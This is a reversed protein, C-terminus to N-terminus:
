KLEKYILSGLNGRKGTRIFAIMDRNIAEGALELLTSKKSEFPTEKTFNVNGPDQTYFIEIAKMIKITNEESEQMEAILTKFKQYADKEITSTKTM